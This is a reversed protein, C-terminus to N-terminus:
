RRMLILLAAAGAILIATNDKKAGNGGNTPPPPPPPDVPPGLRQMTRFINFWEWYPIDTERGMYVSLESIEAENARYLAEYQQGVAEAAADAAMGIKLMTIM